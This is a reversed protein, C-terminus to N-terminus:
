KKNLAAAAGAEAIADNLEEISLRAGNGKGKLMGSLEGWSGTPRDARLEARGDPLLDLRIKDGRQVGLHKLVEKRFTIQGRATVTLTAMNCGGFMYTICQQM